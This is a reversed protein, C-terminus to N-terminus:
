LRDLFSSRRDDIQDIGHGPQREQGYWDPARGGNTAPQQEAHNGEGRVEIPLAPFVRSSAPTHLIDLSTPPLITRVMPVARAGALLMSYRIPANM